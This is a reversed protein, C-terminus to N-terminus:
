AAADSKAVTKKSAKDTKLAAVEGTLAEVQTTLAQVAEGLAALNYPAFTETLSRRVKGIRGAEQALSPALVLGGLVRGPHRARPHARLGPM